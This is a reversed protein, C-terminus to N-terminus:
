AGIRDLRGSLGMSSEVTFQKNRSCILTENCQVINVNLNENEIEIM